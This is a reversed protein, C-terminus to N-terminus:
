SDPRDVTEIEYRREIDSTARGWESARVREQHAEFAVEDAFLEEVQWVLPDDTRRVEFWVCGPEARTLSVHLPLEGIVVAAEDLSRCVLQGSLRVQPM